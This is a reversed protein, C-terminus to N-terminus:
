RCTAVGTETGALAGLGLQCRRRDDDGEDVFFSVGISGSIAVMNPSANSLTLRHVKRTDIVARPNFSALAAMAAM